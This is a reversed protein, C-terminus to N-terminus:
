RYNNFAIIERPHTPDLRTLFVAGGTVDRGGLWGTPHLGPQSPLIAGLSLIGELGQLSTYHFLMSPAPLLCTSSLQQPLPPLQNNVPAPTIPAPLVPPPHAPAPHVSALQVPAQLPDSGSFTSLLVQSNGPVFNLSSAHARKDNPVPHPGWM